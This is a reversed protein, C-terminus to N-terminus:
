KKVKEKINNFMAWVDDKDTANVAYIHGHILQEFEYRLAHYKKKYEENASQLKTIIDRQLDGEYEDKHTAIFFINNIEEINKGCKRIVANKLKATIINGEEYHNFNHILEKGNFVYLIYKVKQLWGEYRTEESPMGGTDMITDGRFYQLFVDTKAVDGSVNRTQVYESPLDHGQLLEYICTKGSNEPGVLIFDTM